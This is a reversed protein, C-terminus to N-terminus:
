SGSNERGHLHLEGAFRLDGAGAFSTWFTGVDTKCRTKGPLIVTRM